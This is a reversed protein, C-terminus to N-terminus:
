DTIRGIILGVGEEGAIRRMEKAVDRKV